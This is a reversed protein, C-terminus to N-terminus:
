RWPFGCSRKLQRVLEIYDQEVERRQRAPDTAISYINLEIADAGAEEMLRAYQLWGGSPCAM